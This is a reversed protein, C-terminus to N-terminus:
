GYCVGYLSLADIASSGRLSFASGTTGLTGIRRAGDSSVIVHGTVAGATDPAFCADEWSSSQGLTLINYTGSWLPYSAAAKGPFRAAVGSSDVYGCPNYAPTTGGATPVPDVWSFSTGDTTVNIRGNGSAYSLGWAGTLAGGIPPLYAIKQALRGSIVNSSVWTEADQSRFVNNGSSVYGATVVWGEGYDVSLYRLSRPLTRATWTTGNDDSTLYQNSDSGSPPIRGRVVVWRGINTMYVIDSWDGSPITLSSFSKGNTSIAACNLGVAIYVGNGHAVGRYWGLPMSGVTWNIGNDESYCCADQGVAVFLPKASPTQNNLFSFPKVIM